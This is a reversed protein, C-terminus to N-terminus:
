NVDGPQTQFVRIGLNRLTNVCEDGDEFVCFIDGSQQLFEVVELKYQDNPRPDDNDRMFLQETSVYPSVHSKLWRITRERVDEIRGTVFVVRYNAYNLFMKCIAVTAEIPPDLHCLDDAEKYKGARFLHDRHEKDALTGDMDFCVYSVM